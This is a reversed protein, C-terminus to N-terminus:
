EWNTCKPGPKDGIVSAGDMTCARVMGNSAHIFWGNDSFIPLHWLADGSTSSGAAELNSNPGIITYNALITLASLVFIIKYFREM